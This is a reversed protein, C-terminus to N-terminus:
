RRYEEEEAEEQEPIWERIRDTEPDMYRFTLLDYDESM